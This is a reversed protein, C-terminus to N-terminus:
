SRYISFMLGAIPVSSLTVMKTLAYSSCAEALFMGLCLGIAAIILAVSSAAAPVGKKITYALKLQLLM